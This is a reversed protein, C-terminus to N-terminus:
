ARSSASRLIPPVRVPARTRGCQQGRDPRKQNEIYEKIIALPTDGCPAAFYSPSRFHDGWMM